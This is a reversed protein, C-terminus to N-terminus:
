PKQLYTGRVRIKDGTKMAGLDTIRMRWENSYIHPILHFNYTTGSIAFDWDITITSSSGQSFLYPVFVASDPSSQGSREFEVRLGIQFNAMKVPVNLRIKSSSEVNGIHGTAVNSWQFHPSSSLKTCLGLVPFLEAFTSPSLDPKNLIAGLGTTADWDSQVQAAPITPKNLIAAKGSSANWDSQVQAAPITPKNLIQGLGSSADWDPQVQADGPPAINLVIWASDSSSYVCEYVGGGKMDAAALNALGTDTIKKCITATGGSGIKLKTSAQCDTAPKVLFRLGGVLSGVTMSPSITYTDGSRSAALPKALAEWMRALIGELARANNDINSPTMASSPWRATNSADTTNLDTIEAM